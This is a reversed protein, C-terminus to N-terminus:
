PLDFFFRNLAQKKLQDRVVVSVKMEKGITNLNLSQTVFPVDFITSLSGCFSVPHFQSPLAAIQAGTSTARSEIMIGNEDRKLEGLQIVMGLLVHIFRM